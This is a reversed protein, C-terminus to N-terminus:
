PLYSSCWNYVDIINLRIQSQFTPHYISTVTSFHLALLWIRFAIAQLQTRLHLWMIRHLFETEVNARDGDIHDCHYATFGHISTWHISTVSIHKKYVCLLQSDNPFILEYFVSVEISDM